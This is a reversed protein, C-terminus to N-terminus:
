FIHGQYDAQPVSESIVDKGEKCAGMLTHRSFRCTVDKVV